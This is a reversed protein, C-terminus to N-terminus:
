DDCGPEGVGLHAAPERPGGAADVVDVLEVVARRETPHARGLVDGADAAEEDSRLAPVDVVLADDHVASGERATRTRDGQRPPLCLTPPMASCVTGRVVVITTMPTEPAPFGVTAASSTARSPQSKASPSSNWGGSFTSFIRSPM